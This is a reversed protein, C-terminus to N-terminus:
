FGATVGARIVWPSNYPTVEGSYPSEYSFNYLALLYFGAKSGLPQFYGGGALFSNFSDRLKKGSQPDIAYTYNLYEYEAHAFLPGYFNYRVFPSVGYDNTSLNVEKYKNYQYQLQIGTALKQNIRYGVLPSVSINTSYSTFSFGFGGGVFLRDKFTPKEELEDEGWQAFSYSFVMLSLITLLTKKM